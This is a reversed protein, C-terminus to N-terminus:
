MGLVTKNTGEFTIRCARFQTNAKVRYGPEVKTAFSHILLNGFTPEAHLVAELDEALTLADRANTQTDTVKSIYLILYVSFTNLVRRPAGQLDRRKEDPEICLTPTRPIQSQDGYYIDEEAIGLGPGAAVCLDFVANCFTDLRGQPQDSYPNTM